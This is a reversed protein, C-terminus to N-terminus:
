RRGPCPWVSIWRSATSPPWSSCLLPLLLPFPQSPEDQLLISLCSQGQAKEEALVAPVPPEEALALHGTLAWLGALGVADFGTLFVKIRHM